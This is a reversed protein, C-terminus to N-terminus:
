ISEKKILVSIIELRTLIGLLKKGDLVPLTRRNFKELLDAAYSVSDEERLTPYDDKILDKVLMDKVNNLRNYFMDVDPLFASSSLDKMYKPVCSDIIDSIDICGIYENDVNTIPLAYYRTLNFLKIVSKINSNLSVSTVDRLYVDKVIM